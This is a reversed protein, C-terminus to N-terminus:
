EARTLCEACMWFPPQTRTETSRLRLMGDAREVVEYDGDRELDRQIADLAAPTAPAQTRGCDKCVVTM